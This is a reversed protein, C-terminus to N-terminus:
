GAAHVAEAAASPRDLGRGGAVVRRARLPPRAAVLKRRAVDIVAALDGPQDVVAEAVELAERQLSLAAVFLPEAALLPRYLIQHPPGPQLAVDDRDDCALRLWVHRYRDHRSPCRARMLHAEGHRRSRIRHAGPSVPLSYTTTRWAFSARDLRHFDPGPLPYRGGPLSHQATSPSSWPSAYVTISRPTPNLRSISVSCPGPSRWWRLCYTRRRLALRQRGAPTQPWMVNSLIADFGPLGRKARPRALSLPGRCSTSSVFSDPFLRPTPRSRLVSSVEFLASWCDAASLTSPLRGTPPFALLLAHEPSLAPNLM